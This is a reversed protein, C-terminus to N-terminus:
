NVKKYTGANLSHTLSNLHKAHSVSKLAQAAKNESPAVVQPKSINLAEM